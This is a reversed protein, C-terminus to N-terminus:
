LHPTSGMAAYTRYFDKQAAAAAEVTANFADMVTKVVPNDINRAGGAVLALDDVSLEAENLDTNMTREPKFFTM